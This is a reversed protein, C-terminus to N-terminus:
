DAATVAEDADITEDTAADDASIPDAAFCARDSWVFYVYPTKAVLDIYAIVMATGVASVYGLGAPSAVWLAPYALWLLGVHNQLVKFLRYRERNERAYRPFVVYLIALLVVHFGGSIAFGIWTALGTALTAALGVSIMLADAAGVGIIWKRPAGAVYGVYGVLLPTTVIWDLYRFLYVENGGVTVVGIEAAMLIYSFAAFGPIIFLWAFKGRSAEVRDSQMLAYVIGVGALLGLASIAYSVTIALEAM